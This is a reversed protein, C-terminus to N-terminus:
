LISSRSLKQEVQSRFANDNRYRPDSMAQRLEFVSHYKDPAAATTKGSLPEGSSGYENAFRAQLGKVASIITAADGSETAQNYIEAEKDSLSNGAWQQLQEFSEQGGVASYVQYELLQAKAAQGEAFQNAIDKSIGQEELSAYDEESYTNGNDVYRQSMADFDIGVEALAEKVEEPQAEKEPQAEEANDVPNEEKPSMREQTFKKELENYARAMDSASKFKEPLWEPRDTVPTNDERLQEGIKAMAADDQGVVAEEEETHTSNEVM